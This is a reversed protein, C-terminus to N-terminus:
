APLANAAASAPTQAQIHPWDDDEIKDRAHSQKRDYANEGNSALRHVVVESTTKVASKGFRLFFRRTEAPSYACRDRSAGRDCRPNRDRRASYRRVRDHGARDFATQVRFRWLAARRGSRKFCPEHPSHENPSLAQRPRMSIERKRCALSIFCSDQLGGSTSSRALRSLRSGIGYRKAIGNADLTPLVAVIVPLGWFIIM